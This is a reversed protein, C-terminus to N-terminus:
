YMRYQCRNVQVKYTKRAFAVKEAFFFIMFVSALAVSVVYGFEKDIEINMTPSFNLSRHGTLTRQIIQLDPFLLGIYAEYM